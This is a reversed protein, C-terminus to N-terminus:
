VAYFADDNPAVRGVAVPTCEHDCTPEPGHMVQMGGNAYFSTTAQPRQACTLLRAPTNIRGRHTHTHMEDGHDTHTNTHMEDSLGSLTLSKTM